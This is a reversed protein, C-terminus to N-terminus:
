SYSYNGGGASTTDAATATTLTSYSTNSLSSGNTVINSKVGYSQYFGDKTFTLGSPVTTQYFTIRNRECIWSNAIGRTYGTTVSGRGADWRTFMVIINDCVNLCYRTGYGYELTTHSDYYGGFSRMEILNNLINEAMQIGYARPLRGGVSGYVKCTNNRFEYGVCMIDALVIQGNSNSSHYIELKCNNVNIGGYVVSASHYTTTTNNYNSDYVKITVNHIHCDISPYLYNANFDNFEYFRGSYYVFPLVSYNFGEMTISSAQVSTTSDPTRFYTASSTTSGYAFWCVSVAYNVKPNAYYTSSERVCTMVKTTATKSSDCRYANWGIGWQYNTIIIESGVEGDVTWTLTKTLNIAYGLTFSSATLKWQGSKILVHRYDNGSVNNAWDRLKQDSDVIYTYGGTGSPITPKNLIYALSNPDSETWDSQVPTIITPTDTLDNYSGSTAVTALNPKNQIYAKSSPDAETWDSQVQAAPITPKNLIEALGSTANWDANVQPAPITPKDTLDTYSGTEAVRSLDTVSIVGTSSIDIHSGATYVMTGATIEDIEQQLRSTEKNTDDRLESINKELQSVDVDVVNNLRLLAANIQPVSNDNVTIM